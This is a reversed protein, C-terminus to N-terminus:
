RLYGGTCRLDATGGCDINIDNNRMQGSGEGNNVCYDGYDNSKGSSSDTFISSFIGFIISRIYDMFDCMRIRSEEM